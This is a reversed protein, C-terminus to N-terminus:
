NVVKSFFKADDIEFGYDLYLKHAAIRFNRSWLEVKKCNMKKCIKFADDLLKTGLKHRRYDPHVCVHNLIAYVNMDEYITPIITIKLHAVIKDELKGIIYIQNPDDKNQEFIKKAYELNTKEDFCLNCLEITDALEHSDMVKFEVKM